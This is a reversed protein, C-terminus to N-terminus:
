RLTLPPTQTPGLRARRAGCTQIVIMGCIMGYRPVHDAPACPISSALMWGDWAGAIWLLQSACIQPLHEILVRNTHGHGDGARCHRAGGARMLRPRMPDCAGWNGGLRPFGGEGFSGRVGPDDCADFREYLRRLRRARKTFLREFQRPVPGAFDAYEIASVDRQRASPATHATIPLSTGLPRPASSALLILPQRTEFWSEARLPALPLSTACSM